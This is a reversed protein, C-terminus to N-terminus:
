INLIEFIKIFVNKEEFNFDSMLFSLLNVFSDRYVYSIEM